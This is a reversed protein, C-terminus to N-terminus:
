PLGQRCQEARQSFNDCYDALFDPLPTPSNQQIVNIARDFELAADRLQQLEAYRPPGLHFMVDRSLECLHRILNVAMQGDSNPRLYQKELQSVADRFENLLTDVVPDGLVKM